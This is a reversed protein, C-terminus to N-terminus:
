QGLQTVCITAGGGLIMLDVTIIEGLDLIWSENNRLLRGNAATDDTILEIDAANRNQIEVAIRNPLVAVQDANVGFIIGNGGASVTTITVYQINPETGPKIENAM